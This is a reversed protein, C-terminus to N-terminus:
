RKENKEGALDQAMKLHEKLTPLTKEAWAKIDKDKGNKAIHEFLAIDKKHDEVMDSAFSHEFDAGRLKSLKTATERHEKDLQRPLVVGKATAIRALEQNAKGHDTILRQAFKRMDANNSQRLALRGIEVEALNGMAVRQVFDQDSVNSVDDKNRDDARNRQQRQQQQQQAGVSCALLLALGLALPFRKM